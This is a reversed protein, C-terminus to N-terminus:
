TLTKKAVTIHKKVEINPDLQDTIIIGLYKHQENERTTSRKPVLNINGHRQRSSIMLGTKNINM